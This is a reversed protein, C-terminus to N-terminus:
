DEKLKLQGARGGGICIEVPVSSSPRIGNFGFLSWRLSDFPPSRPINVRFLVSFLMTDGTNSSAGGAAVPFDILFAASDVKARLIDMFRVMLTEAAAGALGTVGAFGVFLGDRIFRLDLDTFRLLRVGVGLLALGLNVM